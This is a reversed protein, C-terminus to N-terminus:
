KLYKLSLNLSELLSQNTVQFGQIARNGEGRPDQYEESGQDKWGIEKPSNTNKAISARTVPAYRGADGVPSQGLKSGLNVIDELGGSLILGAFGLKGKSGFHPKIPGTQPDEKSSRQFHHQLKGGQQM